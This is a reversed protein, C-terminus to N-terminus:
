THGFLKLLDSLSRTNLVDAKELWGRRAQDVGYQLNNFDTLQHADSNISVLVGASKAMRCHLANLDLRLPQANLELFCGRQKAHQIIRKMDLDYAERSGLLRGSPHALITFYPRDMARM